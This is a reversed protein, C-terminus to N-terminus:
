PQQQQTEILRTDEFISTLAQDAVLDQSYSITTVSAAAAITSRSMQARLCRLLQNGGQQRQHQHQHQHQHHQQQHHQQQHQEATWSSSLSPSSYPNAGRGEGIYLAAPPSSIRERSVNTALYTQLFPRMSEIM